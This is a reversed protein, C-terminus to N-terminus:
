ESPQVVALFKGEADIAVPEADVDLITIDDRDYYVDADPSFFIFSLVGEYSLLDAVITQDDIQLKVTAFLVCYHEQHEFRPLRRTQMRVFRWRFFTVETRRGVTTQQVFNVKRIQADYIVGEKAGLLPRVAKLVANEISNFKPWLLLRTLVWPTFIVALILEPLWGLDGEDEMSGYDTKATANRKAM